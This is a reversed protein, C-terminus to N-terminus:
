RVPATQSPESMSRSVEAQQTLAREQALAQNAALLKQDSQEVPTKIAQEVDVHVRKHAPDDLRGEVAFVNGTKGMVVHDVRTLANEALSRDGAGPYADRNDKCVALLSRSIRESMADYPKGM